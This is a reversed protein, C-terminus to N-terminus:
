KMLVVIKFMVSLTSLAFYWRDIIMVMIIM